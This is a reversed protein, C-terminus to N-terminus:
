VSQAIYTLHDAARELNNVLNIFVGSCQPQCKGKKLRELHDKVLTSRMTDIQDEVKNIDDMLDLKRSNFTLDTLRYLENILDKMNDIEQIVSSSFELGDKLVNATYKTVNDALEAIRMIDNLNHHFSSIMKEEGYSVQANSINVLYSIIEKNMLELKENTNRIMETNDDNKKLFDDISINLINVAEYTMRSMEKTIQGLAVSPYQLMREDMNIIKIPEEKKDKIILQSLKVFINTFPLFIATCVVNFLTHFMAIQTSPLSFAKALVNDMFGPWLLLIITFICSGFLNFMLHIISARRGNTSAGISSLLTTVCTGINTGLIVFLVDNGGNGIVLGGATMTIIISTVASSSQMIATTIIGFLLLLFPNSLNSLLDNIVDTELQAIAESMFELGVFILGLGGLAFGLIKFKKKKALMTIFIGIAALSMAIESIPLSKLAVIQATITTGINAGMIITTAQFLTMVGANVLGVVMVTTAASSQVVATAVTGIGVGVLKNKSSKNFLNRIGKNALMEINDSLLKCGILFTGVGAIFMMLIEM